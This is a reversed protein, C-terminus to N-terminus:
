QSFPGPRVAPPGARERRTEATRGYYLARRGSFSVLYGEFGAAMLADVIQPFTMADMEAGELRRLAVDGAKPDM